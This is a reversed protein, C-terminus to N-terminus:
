SHMLKAWHFELRNELLLGSVIKLIIRLLTTEQSLVVVMLQQRGM